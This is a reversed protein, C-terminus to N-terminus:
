LYVVGLVFVARANGSFPIHAVGNCPVLCEDPCSEAHQMTNAKDSVHKDM